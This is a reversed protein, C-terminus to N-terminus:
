DSMHLFILGSFCVISFLLYVVVPSLQFKLYFFRDVVKQYRDNITYYMYLLGFILLYTCVCFVVPNMLIGWLDIGYKRLIVLITTVLITMDFTILSCTVSISGEGYTKETGM